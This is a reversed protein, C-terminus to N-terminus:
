QYRGFRRKPKKRLPKPFQPYEEFANENIPLIDLLNGAVDEISSKQNSESQFDPIQFPTNTEAQFPPFMQLKESKNTIGSFRDNFINASFEKGLRSGNLVTRTNHDIFTVGYIRGDENERILVNIGKNYLAKEFDDHSSTKQMANAVVTKTKAILEKDKIIAKSDEGKKTLADFGVSKGFLSSKFPNSVKEGKDNTAFYVVGHYPKGQVDGITEEAKINYLSLLSKFENLSQFKYKDALQRVCSKLQRNIEGKEYDVKQIHYEGESLKKDAPHLGYEQELEKTIKKSRRHEYSDSIREGNEKVRLTVLHLHERDIDTHKIVMYPQNGFGLRQLYKEAIESLQEDSLSDNPDPNLSIHLVPKSVNHESALFTEFSQMLIQMNHTGDPRIGAINNTLLVEGKEKEVKDLNYKLVGFLNNGVSIKAVM